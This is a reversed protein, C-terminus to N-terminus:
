LAQDDFQPWAPMATYPMGVRIIHKLDETTPLSGSPTNRIKFKGATFDRPRPLLFPAAIGQGDGKEGHCQACHALYLQKGAERQADTGLDPAPAAAARAALSLAMTLRFITRRDMM